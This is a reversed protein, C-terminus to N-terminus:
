RADRKQLYDHIKYLRDIDPTADSIWNDLYGNNFAGEMLNYEAWQDFGDAGSAQEKAYAQLLVGVQNHDWQELPPWTNVDPSYFSAFGDRSTFQDKAAQALAAEPAKVRFRQVDESSIQVFIRNTTFNYEKPSTLEEFTLSAIDFEEAFAEVYHKAYNAYLQPYRCLKLLAAYLGDNTTGSDDSFMREVAQDISDSHLSEYFGSFPLTTLM